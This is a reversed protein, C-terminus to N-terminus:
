DKINKLPTLIVSLRPAKLQEDTEEGTSATPAVTIIVPVGPPVPLM